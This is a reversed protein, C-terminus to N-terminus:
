AQIELLPEGAEVTGENEILFRVATGARDAKVEYFTKMIEIVGIVDGEAM